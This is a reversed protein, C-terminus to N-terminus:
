MCEYMLTIPLTKRNPSSSPRNRCLLPDFVYSPIFIKCFSIVPVWVLKEWWIKTSFQTEDQREKKRLAEVTTVYIKVAGVQVVVIILRSSRTVCKFLIFFIVFIIFDLKPELGSLWVLNLKPEVRGLWFKLQITWVRVWWLSSWVGVYCPQNM